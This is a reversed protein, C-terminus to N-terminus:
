TPVTTSSSSLSWTRTSNASTFPTAYAMAVMGMSWSIFSLCAGAQRAAYAHIKPGRGKCLPTGAPM